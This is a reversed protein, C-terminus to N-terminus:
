KPQPPAKDKCLQDAFGKLKEVGRVEEEQLPMLVVHFDDYMEIIQDLYKKQMKYRAKCMKCDDDPFLVQNIVINHIDIKFKTLEQILRDTEYMSLFEPICVALFTTAKNDKMRENVREATKKMKEINGFAKDFTEQFEQPSGFMSAFSSFVSTLKTKIDMLKQLGKELLTPFNLLRLTHGTPATDFIVLDFKKDGEISQILQSFGMAEDIGPVAGLIESLFGRTSEDNEIGGFAPLQIDESDVTPDIEMAYLNDFGKVQTPEKGFQQDFADSLNHAPDTSIILVSKRHRAMLTAFSSSTTTKGVGGKGGVFVWKLDENKILNVLTGEMREVDM